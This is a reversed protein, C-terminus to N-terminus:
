PAIYRVVADTLADVLRDDALLEPRFLSAHHIAADILEVVVFAAVDPDSVRVKGANLALYGGVAATITQRTASLSDDPMVRVLARHLEPEHQHAAFVGKILRRALAPLADPDLDGIEALTSLIVAEEAKLHREALATVIAERSSFYQYLSGISVGARAAIRNTSLQAAGDTLLIQATAELIAEVTAISRSQSPKRRRRKADSM